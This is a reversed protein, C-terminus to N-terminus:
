ALGFDLRGDNTPGQFVDTTPDVDADAIHDTLDVMNNLGNCDASMKVGADAIHDNVDTCQDICDLQYPDNTALDSLNMEDDSFAGTAQSDQTGFVGGCSEGVSESAGSPEITRNEQHMSAALAAITQSADAVDYNTNVSSSM